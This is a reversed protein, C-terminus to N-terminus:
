FGILWGVILVNNNVKYVESFEWDIYGEVWKFIYFM